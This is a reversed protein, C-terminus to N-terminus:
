PSMVTGEVGVTAGSAASAQGFVGIGSTSLTLGNVGHTAGRAATVLGTVGTGSGSRSIGRVGVFSTGQVGVGSGNLSTGQIAISNSKEVHFGAFPATTGLGVNGGIQFLLSNGLVTSSLWLPIVNATGRGSVAPAAGPS